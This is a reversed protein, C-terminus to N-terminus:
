GKRLEDRWYIENGITDRIQQQQEFNPVVHTLDDRGFNLNVGCRRLWYRSFEKSSPLGKGMVSQFYEADEEDMLGCAAFYEVDRQLHLIDASAEKYYGKKRLNEQIELMGNQTDALFEFILFLSRRYQAYMKAIADRSEICHKLGAMQDNDSDGEDDDKFFAQQRERDWCIKQGWDKMYEADPWENNRTDTSKM